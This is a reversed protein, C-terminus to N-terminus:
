PNSQENLKSTKIMCKYCYYATLGNMDRCNCKTDSKSGNTYTYYSGDKSKAKFIKEYIM